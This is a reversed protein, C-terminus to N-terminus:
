KRSRAPDWGMSRFIDLDSEFMERLQVPVSGPEHVVGDKVVTRPVVHRSGVRTQFHTDQFKFEGAVLDFQLLDARSGVRL